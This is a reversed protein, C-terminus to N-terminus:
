GRRRWRSRCSRGFPSSALSTPRRQWSVCASSSSRALVTWSPGPLPMDLFDIPTGRKLVYFSKGTRRVTYRRIACRSELRRTEETLDEIDCLDAFEKLDFEIDKSSASCLVSGHKINDLDAVRISRRGSCGVVVDVENLMDELPMPYFGEAYALMNVIPDIDYISVIAARGALARACSKGIRGWGVVGVRLGQLISAMQTRMVKELSYVCADGILADEVQKLPSDAMSIVPVGLPKEDAAAQYRWLGNNTDEVCGKFHQYRGLEHTWRSHYGGVEQLMLPSRSSELLEVVLKWSNNLMDDINEPVHVKYGKEGLLNITPQDASYEIAIVLDVPYVENVLDIYEVTTPLIHQLLVCRTGDENKAEKTLHRLVKLHGHIDIGSEINLEHTRPLGTMHGSYGSKRM